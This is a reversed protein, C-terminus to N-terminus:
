FVFIYIMMFYWIIPGVKSLIKSNKEGQESDYTETIFIGVMNYIFFGVMVITYSALFTGIVVKLIYITIEIM